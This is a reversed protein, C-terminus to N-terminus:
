AVIVAYDEALIEHIQRPSVNAIRAKTHHCDTLIGAQPGTLSIAAGGLANVAMATLAAAAQEGTSLLIDLERKTPQPAVGHGLRLLEDTVGAMASVIAVVRCGQRQTDLIRQAVHCIREPTGVSTGGYKQVVLRM